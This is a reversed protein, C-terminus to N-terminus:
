ADAPITVVAQSLRGTFSASTFQVGQDTNFLEPCGRRWAEELAELCFGEM